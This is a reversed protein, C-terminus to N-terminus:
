SILSILQNTRHTWTNNKALYEAGGKAPPYCHIFLSVISKNNM